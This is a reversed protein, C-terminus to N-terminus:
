WTSDEIDDWAEIFAERAEHMSYHLNTEYEEMLDVLNPLEDAFFMLDMNLSVWRKEIAGTDGGPNVRYIYIYIYIYGV